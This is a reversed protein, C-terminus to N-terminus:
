FTALCEFPYGKLVKNKRAEYETLEAIYGIRVVEGGQNEVLRIMAATTRGTALVDALIVVKTGPLICKPRMELRTNGKSNVCPESVSTGPFGGEYRVPVVTKGLKQALAAAFMGGYSESCVFVDFIERDFMGMFEGMAAEFGKPDSFLRSFDRYTKEEPAIGPISDIFDKAEM